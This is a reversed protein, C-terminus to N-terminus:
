CDPPQNDPGLGSLLCIPLLVKLVRCRSGGALIPWRFTVSSVSEGAGSTVSIREPRCTFLCLGRGRRGEGPSHGASGQSSWVHALSGPMGPLFGLTVGAEQFEERFGGLDVPHWTHPEQGRPARPGGRARRGQSLESSGERAPVEM